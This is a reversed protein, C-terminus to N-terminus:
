GVSLLDTAGAIDAAAKMFEVVGIAHLEVPDERLFKASIVYRQGGGHMLTLM